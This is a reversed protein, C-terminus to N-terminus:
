IRKMKGAITEMATAFRESANHVENALESNSIEKMELKKGCKDALESLVYYNDTVKMLRILKELHKALSMNDTYSAWRSVTASSVGVDEAIADLSLESGFITKNVAKNIDMITGM